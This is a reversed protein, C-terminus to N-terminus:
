GGQQAIKKGAERGFRKKAKEIEGKTFLLQREDDVVYVKAGITTQRLGM